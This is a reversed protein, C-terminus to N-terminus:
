VGVGDNKGLRYRGTIMSVINNVFGTSFVLVM